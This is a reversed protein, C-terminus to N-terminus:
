DDDDELEMPPIAPDEGSPLRRVIVQTGLEYVAGCGPCRIFNPGWGDGHPECGCSCYFDLCVKTNKWQLFMRADSGKPTIFPFTESDEQAEAEM